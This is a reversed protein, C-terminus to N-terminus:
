VACASEDRHAAAGTLSSYLQGYQASAHEISFEEVIRARAASAQRSRQQDDLTLQELIGEALAAANRAPVVRGATGVIIGSDGVDTVVCPTGCAMAEAVVNPFAESYSSSVAVDLAALFGAADSQEPLLTVKTGVGLQRITETLGANTDVGRGAAVFHVDGRSQAVLAAANLFNDHDKMPHFRGLNGVIRIRDDLNLRRRLASAAGPSPRFDEVDFGNPIVVSRRPAYGYQEHAARGAHSNYIVAAPRVSMWALVRLLAGFSGHHDALDFSSCRVNWVISRTRALSGAVLGILDAHYLWTQLIDPDLRRLLRVLKLLSLPNPRSPHVGIAFVPIGRKSIRAGVPGITTLSIVSHAFRSTRDSELLRALMIEAGGTDLDTILHAVRIEREVHV